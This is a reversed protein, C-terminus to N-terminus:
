VSTEGQPSILLDESDLYPVLTIIIHGLTMLQPTVGARPKDLSQRMNGMNYCTKLIAKVIKSINIKWIIVPMYNTM